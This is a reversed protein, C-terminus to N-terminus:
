CQQIDQTEMLNSENFDMTEFTESHLLGRSPDAM